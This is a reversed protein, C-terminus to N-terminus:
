DAAPTVCGQEKGAVTVLWESAFNRVKYLDLESQYLRTLRAAQADSWHFSQWPLDRQGAQRRAAQCALLAGLDDHVQSSLERSHFADFLAPAADNTLGALYATDLALGSASRQINLRTIAGDVNVLNLTVAFGLGALVLALAFHRMRGAAELLVSAALLVGLWVMFIHTYTRIRSFGYALEYLQLRQFASVLIVIVLGMLLMGLGSFVRRPAAQERRTIASLSLFLLLSILAVAALEGFGRRAYEAYTFGELRINAQGGFFYQFQLGVFVGFLLNVCALITTSELWGLFPPLSPKEKDALKEDQSSLLAFLFVGALLYAGITIYTLRFIIEGLNEIRLFTLLNSVWHEFLPDAQALLLTLLAVVPFALLLGLIVSLPTHYRRFFGPSAPPPSGPVPAGPFWAQVPRALVGGLLRLSNILYDSLSYQWWRGGLWTVALLAMGALALAYDVALTFAEQRLFTMAALFLVPALLLLSAPAPKIREGLTLMVGASLCLAIFIFFSIGPLKQWFLQDFCWALFFATLGLRTLHKLPM